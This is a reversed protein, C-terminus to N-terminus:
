PKYNAVDPDTPFGLYHYSRLNFSADPSAADGPDGSEYVYSPKNPDGVMVFVFNKGAQYITPVAADGFSLQQVAPLPVPALATPSGPPAGKSTVFYHSDTVGTVAQAPTTQLYAVTGTTAPVFTGSDIVPPSGVFGPAVTQSLAAFFPVAESSMHAVQIGLGSASTATRTLETITVKLNGVGPTGSPIFTGGDTLTPDPGCKGASAPDADSVCGTLVLLYSKDKLFAGAAIKPLEWYDVGATLTGAESTGKLIEDCTTGPQGNGPNVIGKQALKIPNMLIPVLIRNSLDIGFSPFAGGTGSYLGPPLPPTTARDPLPPYPAYDVNADTTGQKFCVRIGQFKNPLTMNPGLDAAANVLTLKALTGSAADADGGADTVPGDTTTVDKGADVAAVDDDDGCATLVAALGAGACVMSALGYRLWGINRM